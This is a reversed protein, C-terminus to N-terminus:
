WGDVIVCRIDRAYHVIRPVIRQNIEARHTTLHVIRPLWDRTLRGSRQGIPKVCDKVPVNTSQFRSFASIQRTIEVLATLISM